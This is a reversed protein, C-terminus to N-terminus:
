IKGSAARTNKATKKTPGLMESQIEVLTAMSTNLQEMKANLDSLLKDQATKGVDKAGTVTAAISKGVEKFSASLSSIKEGVKELTSPELQKFATAAASVSTSLEKFRQAGIQINDFKVTEFGKLGSTVAAMYGGVPELRLGADALKSIKDAQDGGILGGIASGISGMIGPGFGELAKKMAEIGASAGILKDAPIASLREIQETTATIGATKFETIKGITNGIGDAISAITGSISNGVSGIVTAIGDLVSRFAEGFSNIVPSAGELVSRLGDGFSKVVPSVGELVSKVMKGFADFGPSAIEFAKSLGIIALTVVGIGIAAQPNAFAKVGDALGKLMGGAGGVSGAAPAAAVKGAAAPAAPLSGKAPMGKGAAEAFPLKSAVTNKVAALANSAAAKAAAAAFFIAIGAGLYGLIKPNEWLAKMAAGIGDVVKPVVKDWIFGAAKGIGVAADDFLKKFIAEMSNSQAFKIFGSIYDAIGKIVPTLFKIGEGLLKIGVTVVKVMVDMLGSSLILGQLSQVLSLLQRDVNAAAKARDEEAKKQEKEAVVASDTIGKYGQMAAQSLYVSDKGLAGMTAGQKRQAETMEGARKGLEVFAKDSAAVSGEVGNNIDRTLKSADQGASQMALQYAKAEKTVAVGGTAIMDKFGASMKGTPDLKDLQAIQASLATRQEDSLKATALKMKADRALAQNQEDIAKRSIGTARSLKDLELNYAQAGAALQEQSMSSARGTRSQLEMYGATNEALEEMTIGLKGASEAFGSKRFNSMVGSFVKAGDGATGGFRALTASNNKTVTAFEQLSLGSKAAANQAAFLGAGMDIGAASLSRFAAVNQDLGRALAGFLGGVIPLKSAFSEVSPVADTFAMSVVNGLKDSFSAIKGVALGVGASLSNLVSSTNKIAKNEKEREVTAEKTFKNNKEDLDAKTKLNKLEKDYDKGKVGLGKAMKEMSSVLLALTSETAANDLRVDDQGITGTVSGPM